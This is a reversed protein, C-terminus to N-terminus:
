GRALKFEILQSAKRRVPQGDVVRPKFRWKQISQVASRDFTRRPRSDVVVADTVEGEETITFEVRVWGEVRSRAAKRPYKPEIRLVPIADDDQGASEVGMGTNATTPAQSMGPQTTPIAAAQTAAPTGGAIPEISALSKQPSPPSPAPVTQAPRESQRSTLPKKPAEPRSPIVSDMSGLYPKGLTMSQLPENFSIDVDPSVPLAPSPLSLEPLAPTQAPQAPPQPLRAQQALSKAQEGDSQLRIFSLSGSIPPKELSRDGGKILHHMLMFLGLTVLCACFLSLAIRM